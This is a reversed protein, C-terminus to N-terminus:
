GDNGGENREFGVEEKAIVVGGSGCLGLGGYM